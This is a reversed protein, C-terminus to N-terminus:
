SYDYGYKQETYNQYWRSRAESEWAELKEDDTLRPPEDEFDLDDENKDFAKYDILRKAILDWVARCYWILKGKIYKGHDEMWEAMSDNSCETDIDYTFRIGDYHRTLAIRYWVYEPDEGLHDTYEPNKLAYGRWVIKEGRECIGPLADELWEGFACRAFADEEKRTM